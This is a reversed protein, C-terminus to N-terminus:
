IAAVKVEKHDIRVKTPTFDQFAISTYRRDRETTLYLVNREDMEIEHIPRYRSMLSFGLVRKFARGEDTTVLHTVGDIVLDTASGEELWRLPISQINQCFSVWGSSWLQVLGSPSGLPPALDIEFYRWQGPYMFPDRPALILETVIAIKSVYPVAFATGLAGLFQRRNM